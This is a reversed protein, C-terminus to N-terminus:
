YTMTDERKPNRKSNHKINLQQIQWCIRFITKFTQRYFLVTLFTVLFALLSVFACVSVPLGYPFFTGSSIAPLSNIM